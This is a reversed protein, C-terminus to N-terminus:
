WKNRDTFRVYMDQQLAFWFSYIHYPQDKNTFEFDFHRVLQAIYKNM